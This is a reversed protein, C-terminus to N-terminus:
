VMPLARHALTGLVATPEACAAAVLDQFQRVLGLATARTFVDSRYDLFGTWAGDRRIVQLELDFKATGHPVDSPTLELGASRHPPTDTRMGFAVSSIPVASLSRRPLVAKIVD